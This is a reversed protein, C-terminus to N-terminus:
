ILETVVQQLKEPENLEDSALIADRKRVIEQMKRLTQYLDPTIHNLDVISLCNEHGLLWRYFTLSFPM